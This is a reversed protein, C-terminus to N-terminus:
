KYFLEPSSSTSGLVPVAYCLYQIVFFSYISYIAFRRFIPSILISFLLFNQLFFLGFFRVWTECPKEAKMNQYFQKKKVQIEM